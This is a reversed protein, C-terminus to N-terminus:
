RACTSFIMPVSSVFLSRAAASLSGATVASSRATACAAYMSPPVFAAAFATFYIFRPLIIPIPASAATSAAPPTYQYMSDLAASFVACATSVTATCRMSILDVTSAVPVIRGTSETSTLELIVARM